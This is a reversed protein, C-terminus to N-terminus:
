QELLVEAPSPPLQPSPVVEAERLSTPLPLMGRPGTMRRRGAKRLDALHQQEESLEVDAAGHLKALAVADAMQARVRRTGAAAAEVLWAAAGPGIALFQAEAPNTARPTRERRPVDPDLVGM